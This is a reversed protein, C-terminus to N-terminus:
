YEEFRIEKSNLDAVIGHRMLNSGMAYSLSALSKNYEVLVAFRDIKAAIMKDQFTLVRFTDSLGEELRRVEQKYSIEALEEFRTATHVIDAFRHVQTLRERLEAEVSVKLERLSLQASRTQQKSIRYSADASKNGLPYSFQLGVGWAYGDGAALSDLSDSLNGAYPITGPTREEGAIGTSQLKLNLDLDPLRNIRAAEEERRKQKIEIQGIQLDPRSGLADQLAEEDTPLLVQAPESIRIDPVPKGSFRTLNSPLQNNLLRAFRHTAVERQQQASLYALQSGAMATEAEQVESLPILGAELKRQNGQHLTKTLALAEKRFSEEIQANLVELYGLEISLALNQAQQLFVYAEQQSRGRALDLALLNTQSGSNRLLPQRLDLSLNSKYKPNLAEVSSSNEVKSNLFSLSTQLGSSFQKRLGFEGSQVQSDLTDQQILSSSNPTREEGASANAFLELSFRGDEVAIALRSSSLDLRRAQLAFNEQLGQLILAQLQDGEANAIGTSLLLLGILMQTCITGFKHMM